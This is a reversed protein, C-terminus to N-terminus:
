GNNPAANADRQVPECDGRVGVPADLEQRLVGRLWDAMRDQQMYIVARCQELEMEPATPMRDIHPVGGAIYAFAWVIRFM